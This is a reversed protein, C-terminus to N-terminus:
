QNDFTKIHNVVHWREEDTLQSGFSPMATRPVGRTIVRFLETDSHPGVHKALDAPKPNLTESLPGDGRGTLGHCAQCNSAYLSRGRSLSQATPPYPNADQATVTQPAVIGGSMLLYVGLALAGFGSGLLAGSLSSHRRTRSGVLVMVAALGLASLGIIGTTTLTPQAPQITLVPAASAPIAFRFATQADGEGERRVIVEAQWQGLVNFQRTQAVYRGGGIPALQLESEGLDQDLFTLRLLVKEIHEDPRGDHTAMVEIRNDGPQAPTVQLVIRLDDATENLRLGNTIPAQQTPALSTLLGTAVLILLGLLLEGRTTLALLRSARRVLEALNSMAEASSRLARALLPKVRLLNVAGLAVMPVLLLIKATLARGYDTTFLADLRDIQQLAGFIGTVVLVMVAVISLTSFRGVVANLFPARQSPSWSTSLLPVLVVLLLLGGLWLSTAVLHAWDVLTMLVPMSQNAAGHSTLSTTLLLALGLAGSLWGAMRSDRRRQDPWFLVLALLLLLGARVAWVLGYRTTSLVTFAPSGLAEAISVEFATAAQLLLADIASLALLVLAVLNLLRRRRQVASLLTERSAGAGARGAADTAAGGATLAGGAAVAATAAGAATVVGTLAALAPLIILPGVVLNGVLVAQGVFTLWRVLAQAALSPENRTVPEPVTTEASAAQGITLTYFGRAPHGDVTSLTKWGITYAGEALPPLTVKVSLRDASFESRTGAIAHRRQDLLIVETFRPEVTETFWLELLPPPDPMVLEPVPEARQLYAHAAVPCPTILGIVMLLLLAILCWFRQHQHLWLAPGGVWGTKPQSLGVPMGQM